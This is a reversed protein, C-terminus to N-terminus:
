REENITIHVEEPIIELNNLIKDHEVIVPVVHRGAEKGSIDVYLKFDEKESLNLIAENGAVRLTVAPTNIYANLGEGLGHIEIELSNYGFSSNSIGKLEIRVHINASDNAIEVGAPLMPMIPLGSTIEVGSIDIPEAYLLDINSLAERSGRIKIIEPVHLDTMEYKASIEGIIEVFIPVEKTECLTVSVSVTDSSLSVNPVTEGNIDFASAELTFSSGSRSIRPYPIDVGVYSVSEVLSKPGKIEIQEPQITINGPETAPPAEGTFTINVPRYVSVLSEIQVRISAPRVEEVILKNSPPPVKVEVISEGITYGFVDAYATIQDKYQAIDARTGKVVVNVTERSVELIALGNQTLAGTNLLEIPINQITQTTPPNQITIVYAWMVIAVLLSLAKTLNKNQLM